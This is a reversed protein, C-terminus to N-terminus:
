GLERESQAHSTRATEKAQRDVILSILLADHAVKAPGGILDALRVVTVFTTNESPSLYHSHSQTAHQNRKDWNCNHSVNSEARTVCDFTRNKGM